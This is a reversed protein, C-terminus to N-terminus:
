AHAALWDKWQYEIAILAQMGPQRLLRRILPAAEDHRGAQWLQLALIDAQPVATGRAAVDAQIAALLPPFWAPEPSAPRGHRASVQMWALAAPGHRELLWARQGDDALQAELAAAVPEPDHMVWSRFSDGLSQFHRVQALWAARTLAYGALQEGPTGYSGGGNNLPHCLINAAASNYREEHEPQLYVPPGPPKPQREEWARLWNPLGGQALHQSRMRLMVEIVAPAPNWGALADTENFAYGIQVGLGNRMEDPEALAAELLTVLRNAVRPRLQREQAIAQALLQSLMAQPFGELGARASAWDLGGSVLHPLLADGLESGSRGRRQITDLAQKLGHVEVARRWRRLLSIPPEDTPLRRLLDRYGRIFVDDEILQGFLAPDATRALQEIDWITLHPSSRVRRWWAPLPLIRKLAAIATAALKEDPGAAWTELLDPAVLLRGTELEAGMSTALEHDHALAHSLVGPRRLPDLLWRQLLERQRGGPILAAAAIGSMWPSREAAAILEAEDDLAAAAILRLRPDPDQRAATLWADLRDAFRLRNASLPAGSEAIAAARAAAGGAHAVLSRLVALCAARPGTRPQAQEWLRLATNTGFTSAHPREGGDILLLFELDAFIADLQASLPGFWPQQRHHLLFDIASGIAKGDADSGTWPPRTSLLAALGAAPPVFRCTTGLDAQRLLSWAWAALGARDGIPPDSMREIFVLEGPLLPAWGMLWAIIEEGQPWAAAGALLRIHGACRRLAQRQAQLRADQEHDAAALWGPVGALLRPDLVGTDRHLEHVQLRAALWDGDGPLAPATCAPCAPGEGPDRLCAYCARPRPLDTM